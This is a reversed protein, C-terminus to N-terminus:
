RVTFPLTFSGSKGSVADRIRTEIQYSGPPLGRLTYTFDTMFARNKLRSAIQLRGFNDQRGIERGSREKIVIGVALDTRWTEGDRQWGFGVPEAYALMPTAADFVANARPNFVGFGGPKGDVWLARRFTLPAQEWLVAATEDLAALAETPKNQQVLAEVQRLRAPV